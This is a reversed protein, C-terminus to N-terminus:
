IKLEQKAAKWGNTARDVYNSLANNFGKAGKRLSSEGAKKLDDRREQDLQNKFSKRNEKMWDKLYKQNLQPSIQNILSVTSYDLERFEQLLKRKQDLPPRRNWDFVKNKGRSKLIELYCNEWRFQDKHIELQHKIIKKDDSNIGMRKKYKKLLQEAEQTKLDEVTEDKNINYWIYLYLKNNEVAVNQIANVYHEDLSNFQKICALQKEEDSLNDFQKLPDKGKDSDKNHLITRYCDVWNFKSGYNNLQTKIIRLSQEDPKDEEDDTDDKDEVTSMDIRMNDAETLAKFAEFDTFTDDEYEEGMSCANGGAANFNVNKNFTSMANPDGPSDFQWIGNQGNKRKKAM